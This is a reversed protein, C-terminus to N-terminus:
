RQRTSRGAWERGAANRPASNPLSSRGSRSLPPQETTAALQAEDRKRVMTVLVVLLLLALIVSEAVTLTFASVGGVRGTCAGYCSTVRSVSLWGLLVASAIAGGIALCAATFMEAVSFFVAWKVRNTRAAWINGRYILLLFGPM